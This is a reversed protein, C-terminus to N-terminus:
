RTRVRRRALVLGVALAALLAGASRSPRTARCTCAPSLESPPSTSPAAGGDGVPPVGADPRPLEDCVGDEDIAGDCDDDLGNCVEASANEDIVGDCDDDRGNCTESSPRCTSSASLITSFYRLADWGGADTM